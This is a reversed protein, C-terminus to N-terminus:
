KFTATLTIAAALLVCMQSVRDTVAFVVPDHHLVGRQAGLVIRTLWYLEICCVGLLVEPRAYLKQVDPSTVYLALVLVSVFGSAVAASAIVPLDVSRYGRGSLSLREDGDLSILEAQRKVAALSFFLFISFALLWPSIPTGTTAAGAIIRLTYLGALICIDIVPRRKLWFSYALTMALYVTLWVSFQWPLLAALGAGMMLCAVIMLCAHSLPVAGASIPRLCKRPHSRDAKLDLLDNLLYTGSAICNFALFALAGNYISSLRLDHAALMPVFVLLNKLWQHARVAHAYQMPARPATDIHRVAPAVAEVKARLRNSTNVTVALACREWVPLDHSHDGAYAFGSPGYRETLFDAKANGKLNRQGDSGFVDDFLGLEEAIAEALRQDTATVLACRGGGCHWARALKIVEPDFPLTAIDIDSHQALFRKLPARGKSLHAVALLGNRWNVSVASWFSEYLMDSRLLTGDLDVVLFHARVSTEAGLKEMM